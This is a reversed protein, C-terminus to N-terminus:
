MELRQPGDDLVAGVTSVEDYLPVDAHHRNGSPLLADLNDPGDLQRTPILAALDHLEVINWGPRQVVVPCVHRHDHRGLGGAPDVVHNGPLGAPLRALWNMSLRLFRQYFAALGAPYFRDSSTVPRGSVIFITAQLLLRGRASA